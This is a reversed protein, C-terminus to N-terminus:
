RDFGGPPQSRRPLAETEAERAERDRCGHEQSAAATVGPAIAADEVTVLFGPGSTEGNKRGGIGIEAVSGQAERGRKMNQLIASTAPRALWM